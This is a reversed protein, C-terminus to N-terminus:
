DVTLDALTSGDPDATVTGEALSAAVEGQGLRKHKHVVLTVAVGSACGGPALAVPRDLEPRSTAHTSIKESSIRTVGASVADRPPHPTRQRIRLRSLDGGGRPWRGRIMTPSRRGNCAQPGVDARTALYTGAPTHPWATPGSPANTTRALITSALTPNASFPWEALSISRRHGLLYLDQENIIEIATLCLAGNTEAQIAGLVLNVQARLM